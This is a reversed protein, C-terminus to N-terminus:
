EHPAVICYNREFDKSVPAGSFHKLLTTQPFPPLVMNVGSVSYITRATGKEVEARAAKDPADKLLMELLSTDKVPPIVISVLTAQYTVYGPQESVVFYIIVRKGEIHANEISRWARNSYFTTPGSKELAPHLHTTYNRTLVAIDAM